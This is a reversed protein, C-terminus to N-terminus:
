SVRERRNMGSKRHRFSETGDADAKKREPKATV